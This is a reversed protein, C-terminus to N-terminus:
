EEKGGIPLIVKDSVPEIDDKEFVNYEDWINELLKMSEAVDDKKNM